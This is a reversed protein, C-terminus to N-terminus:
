LDANFKINGVLKKKGKRGKKIVKKRHVKKIQIPYLQNFLYDKNFESEIESLEIRKNIEINYSLLTACLLSTSSSYFMKERPKALDPCYYLLLNLVQEHNNRDKHQYNYLIIFRPENIPLNIHEKLTIPSNLQNISSSILELEETKMNLKTYIIMNDKNNINNLIDKLNNTLKLALEPIVANKLEDSRTFNITKNAEMEAHYADLEDNTMMEKEDIEAISDIYNNYTCEKKLSIQFDKVFNSSGLDNKLAKISSSYIMRNRVSCHDNCYFIILYKGKIDSGRSIIYSPIDDNLINEQIYKFNDEHNKNNITIHEHKIEHQENVNNGVNRVYFEEDKIGIEIYYMNSDNQFQLFQDKVNSSVRFGSM